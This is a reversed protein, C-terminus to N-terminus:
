PKTGFLIQTGTSTASSYYPTAKFNADGHNAFATVTVSSFSASNGLTGSPLLANPETVVSSFVVRAAQKVEILYQQALEVPQWAMSIPTTVALKGGELANAGTGDRLETMAPTSSLALVPVTVLVEGVALSDIKLRHDGALAKTSLKFAQESSSFTLPTTVGSPDTNWVLGANASTGTANEITVTLVLNENTTTAVVRYRGGTSALQNCGALCLALVAVYFYHIKSM